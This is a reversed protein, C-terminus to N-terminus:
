VTPVFVEFAARPPLKKNLVALTFSWVDALLLAAYFSKRVIAL